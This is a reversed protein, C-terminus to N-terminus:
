GPAILFRMLSTDIDVWIGPVGPGFSTTTDNKLRSDASTPDTVTMPMGLGM